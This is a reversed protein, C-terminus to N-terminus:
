WDKKYIIHLKGNFHLQTAGLQILQAAWPTAQLWIQLWAQRSDAWLPHCTANPLDLSSTTETAGLHSVSVCLSLSVYKCSHLTSTCSTASRLDVVFASAPMLIWLWISLCLLSLSLTSFLSPSPVPTSLSACGRRDAIRSYVSGLPLGCVFRLKLICICTSHRRSRAAVLLWRASRPLHREWAPLALLCCVSDAIRLRCDAAPLLPFVCCAPIWNWLTAVHPLKKVPPWNGCRRWM